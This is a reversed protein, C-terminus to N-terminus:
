DYHKYNKRLWKIEKRMKRNVILIKILNRIFPKQICMGRVVLLPGNKFHYLKM